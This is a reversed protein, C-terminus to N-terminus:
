HSHSGPLHNKIYSGVTQAAHRAEILLDAVHLDFDVWPLLNAPTEQSLRTEILWLMHSHTEHDYKPHEATGLLELAAKRAQQWLENVTEDTLGSSKALFHLENPAYM